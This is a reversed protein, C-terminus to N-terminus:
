FHANCAAPWQFWCATSCQLAPQLASFILQKCAWSRAGGTGASLTTGAPVAALPPALSPAHLSPVPLRARALGGEGCPRLHEPTKSSSLGLVADGGHQVTSRQMSILSPPQDQYRSSCAWPPRGGACRITNNTRFRIWPPIPRNQRAKKALKKKIRFEKQSPQLLLCLPPPRLNSAPTSGAPQGRAGRHSGPVGACSGARAARELAGGAAGAGHNPGGHLLCGAARGRREM